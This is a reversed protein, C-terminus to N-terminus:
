HLGYRKLIAEAHAQIAFDAVQRRLYAEDIGFETALTKIAAPPPLSVGREWNSIFQPTEYGLKGSLEAQSLGAIRRQEILFQGLNFPM